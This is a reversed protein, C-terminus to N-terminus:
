TGSNVSGPVRMSTRAGRGLAMAGTLTDRGLAEALTLSLRATVPAAMAECCGARFRFSERARTETMRM